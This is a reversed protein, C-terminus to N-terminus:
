LHTITKHRTKHMINYGCWAEHVKMSKALMDRALHCVDHDWVSERFNVHNMEKLTPIIDSEM